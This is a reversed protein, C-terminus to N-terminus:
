LLPAVSIHFRVKLVQEFVCISQSFIQLIMSIENVNM